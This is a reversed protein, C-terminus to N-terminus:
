ELSDRINWRHYGVESNSKHQGEDPKDKVSEAKYHATGGIDGTRVGSLAGDTPESEFFPVEDFTLDAIGFQQVEALGANEVEM